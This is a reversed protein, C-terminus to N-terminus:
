VSSLTLQHNYRRLIGADDARGRICSGQVHRSGHQDLLNMATIRGYLKDCTKLDLTYGTLSSQARTERGDHVDLTSFGSLKLATALLYEVTDRM